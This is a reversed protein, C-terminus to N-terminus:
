TKKTGDAAQWNLMIVLGHIETKSIQAPSGTHTHAHLPSPIHEARLESKALLKNIVPLHPLYIATKTNHVKNVGQKRSGGGGPATM